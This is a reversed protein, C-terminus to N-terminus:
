HIKRVRDVVDDVMYLNGKFDFAVAFPDDFNTTLAPGDGNFGPLGSGAYTTILNSAVKRIRLNYEDAIYIASGNASVAVGIPGCMEGAAPPVNDIFGCNGDGASTSIIGSANVKRVRNNGWDAVYINGRTDIAVGYPTNLEATTATINDGNYGCVFEVGAAVSVAAAPTIKWVVCTSQDVVYLNNASDVAMPGLSLFDAYSAFTSINGTTADIKRIVLNGNDSIYINGASDLGVGNPYYLEAVNAKGGDGTYGSIGTGAITTIVGAASVKRVRNGPAEAIYYSGTNDFVAAQPQDLAASTAASGDGRYGGAFTKLVSGNLKRIRANDTDALMFPVSSSLVIGTPRAFESALLPHGDGDYGYVSGAFSNIIGTNLVVYRVRASGANSIYLSGRSFALGRVNGMAALTAPGGDGSFGQQGNGAFTIIIGTGSAVKRVVHNFRDAIYLNNSTDFALGSPGDLTAQTAPGGDGSYGLVGNGAYTTIIGSTDVRRVVEDGTDSIYLDGKSDYVVAWPSGLSAQTAPGGDGSYGFVGNGAITSIIGAPTIKRVVSNGLDAFVLNGAPDFVIGNPDFIKATNAKGGDGSYGAIGTGAYTTIGGSASVKRIRQGYVESVYTNGNRDQVAFNPFVLAAKTALGGDGVYGGAVTTVNQATLTTVTVICALAILCAGIPMGQGIGKM